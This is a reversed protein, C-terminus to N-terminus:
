QFFVGAVNYHILKYFRITPLKRMKRKKGASFATRKTGKAVVFMNPSCTQAKREAKQANSPHMQAIYM